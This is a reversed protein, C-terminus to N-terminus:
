GSPRKILREFESVERLRPKVRNIDDMRPAQGSIRTIEVGLLKTFHEAFVASDSEIFRAPRHGFTAYGAVGLDVLCLICRVIDSVAKGTARLALSGAEHHHARLAPM